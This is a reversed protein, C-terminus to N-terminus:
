VKQEVIRTMGLAGQSPRRDGWTMERSTEGSLARIRIGTDTIVYEHYSNSHKSGRNKLILLSRTVQTQLSVYRLVIITDLLSSIGVGSFDTEVNSGPLQNTMLCTIGRRKCCEVLKMLYDFAAQPGGMRVTASIADVVLHDPQFGDIQQFAHALHQEAGMAEPMLTLFELQGTKVAPRLDIGPSLMTGVVAAGSEEFNIYLVKEGRDCAAQTFTCALTTKGTGSAGAVLIGSCRQYGGGLLEDLQDSGTPVRTGPSVHDLSITSIPMLLTGEEGIVFPCENTAFRSGRYKVIRLRRTMVQGLVRMDVAIVCDAMYDLFQYRSATDGHDSKKATLITTFKNDTLWDHLHQLENLERRTDDYVRLLVDIADIVICKAKIQRARGEIIALLPTVNFDGSLVADRELRSELIFLKGAKELEALNWGLSLANHRVAEAREEFLLLVGAQGARAARYLFELGLVTKGTGPGGGILTTRGEPFGGALIEDLGAVGSSVKPLGEGARSARRASIRGAKSM